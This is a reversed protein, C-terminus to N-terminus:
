RLFMATERWWRWLEPSDSDSVNRGPSSGTRRTPGCSGSRATRRTVCCDGATFTQYRGSVRRSGGDDRQVHGRTRRKASRHRQVDLQGLGLDSFRDFWVEDVAAVPPLDCWLEGRERPSRQSRTEPTCTTAVDAPLQDLLKQEELTLGSSPGLSGGLGSSGGTGPTATSSPGFGAGSPITRLLVAGAAIVVILGTLAAGLRLRRDSARRRAKDSIGTAPRDDASEVVRRAPQDADLADARRGSGAHLSPDANRIRTVLAQLEPGPEADLDTKLKTELERYAVLAEASRGSRVLAIMLTAWLQERYPAEVLASRLEGIVADHEGLGLQVEGLEEVAQLRLEELRRIEPEAFSEFAFDALAPGQWLSLADRLTDRAALPEPGSMRRARELGDEFRHTDIVLPDVRLCYGNSETSILSADPEERDSVLQHRLLSVHSQLTKTATVPADDGWLGDILRDASVPRNAQLALMALVARQSAPLRVPQGDVTVRM